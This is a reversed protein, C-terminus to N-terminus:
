RFYNIFDQRIILYDNGYIGIIGEKYDFIFSSLNSVSVQNLPELTFVYIESEDWFSAKKWHISFKVDDISIKSIYNIEKNFFITWKGEQKLYWINKKFEFLTNKNLIGSEFFISDNLYNRKSEFEYVKDYNFPTNKKEENSKVIFSYRKEQANIEKVFLFLFIIIFVISYNIKCKKKM